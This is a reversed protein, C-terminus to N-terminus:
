LAVSPPSALDVLRGLAHAKTEQEQKRIQDREWMDMWASIEDYPTSCKKGMAWNLADIMAWARVNADQGHNRTQMAEMIRGIQDQILKKSKM